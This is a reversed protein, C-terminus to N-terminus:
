NSVQGTAPGQQDKRTNAIAAHGDIRTLLVPRTPFLEDLQKNDPYNKVDWDNQDWGRGIIWGEPKTKAFENVRDIIEAWSKTGVLNVTQLSQGYGYFHAHGDIFGPYVAKGGADILSDSDYTGTIEEATGVAIIKGDSVAFAEAISFKGDVTYVRANSVILDAQKRASCSILLVSLLLLYSIKMPLYKISYIYPM